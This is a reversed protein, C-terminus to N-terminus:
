GAFAAVAFAAAAVTLFYGSSDGYTSINCRRNNSHYDDNIIM